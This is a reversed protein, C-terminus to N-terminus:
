EDVVRLVRKVDGKRISSGAGGMKMPLGTKPNIGAQILMNPDYMKPIQSKAM